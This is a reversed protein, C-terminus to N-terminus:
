IEEKSPNLRDLFDKLDTLTLCITDTDICQVYISEITEEGYQDAVEAVADCFKGFEIFIIGNDEKMINEFENFYSVKYYFFVKNM